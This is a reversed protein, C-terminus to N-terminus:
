AVASKPEAITAVRSAATDRSHKRTSRLNRLKRRFMPLSSILQESNVEFVNTLYFSSAPIGGQDHVDQFADRGMTELSKVTFAVVGDFRMIRAM